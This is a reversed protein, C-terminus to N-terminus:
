QPEEEALLAAIQSLVKAQQRDGEGQLLRARLGLELQRLGVLDLPEARPNELRALLGPAAAAAARMQAVQRYGGTQWYSYFGIGLALAAAPILRWLNLPRGAGEPEPPQPAPSARRRSRIYIAGCGALVVTGPLIWLLTTFPTFPPDYTVFNGYRAVMYDVVQQPSKGEQLLDYVKQRMDVAIMASSDAISNNQCKPCRLQATLQRWAQEQEADRFTMVESSASVLVPLALLLMLLIIRM